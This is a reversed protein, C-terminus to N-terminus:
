RHPLGLKACYGFQLCSLLVSRGGLAQITKGKPNASRSGIHQLVSRTPFSLSSETAGGGGGDM